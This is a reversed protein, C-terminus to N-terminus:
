PSPGPSLLSIVTIMFLLRRRGEEAEAIVPQIDAIQSEGDKGSTCSMKETSSHLFQPQRDRERKLTSVVDKSYEVTLLANYIFNSNAYQNNDIVPTLRRKNQNRM